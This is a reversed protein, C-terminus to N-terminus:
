IKELIGSEGKLGPLFLIGWSPLYLRVASLHWSGLRAWSESHPPVVPLQPGSLGKGGRAWASQPLQLIFSPTELPQLPVGQPLPTVAQGM